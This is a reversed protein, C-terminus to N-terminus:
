ARESLELWFAAYASFLSAWAAFLPALPPSPPKSKRRRYDSLCVVEGMSGEMFVADSAHSRAKGNPTICTVILANSSSAM